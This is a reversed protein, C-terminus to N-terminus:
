DIKRIINKIERIQDKQEQIINKSLRAVAYNNTKNLIEESTLLAMSHHEMMGKLYEKDNIYIQKKYLYVFIILGIVLLLYYKISFVHYQYDHMMIELLVMFLGMIISIYTKGINNTIYENNNVMILSMGYYQFIFSAIFMIFITHTIKM